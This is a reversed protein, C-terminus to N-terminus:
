PTMPWHDTIIAAGLQSHTFTHFGGGRPRKHGLTHTHTILLRLQCRSMEEEGRRDNNWRPTQCFFALLRPDRFQQMHFGHVSPLSLCGRGSVGCRHPREYFALDYDAGSILVASHPEIRVSIFGLPTFGM